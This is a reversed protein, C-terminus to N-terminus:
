PQVLLDEVFGGMWLGGPRTRGKAGVFGLPLSVVLWGGRLFCWVSLLLM